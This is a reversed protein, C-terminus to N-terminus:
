EHVLHYTLSELTLEKKLCDYIPVERIIIDIVGDEAKLVEADHLLALYIQGADTNRGQLAKGWKTEGSQRLKMQFTISYSAEIGFSFVPTEISYPPMAHTSIVQLPCLFAFLGDYGGDESPTFSFVSQNVNDKAFEDLLNVSREGDGNLDFALRNENYISIINYNGAFAKRYAKTNDEKQCSAICLLVVASLIFLFTNKM